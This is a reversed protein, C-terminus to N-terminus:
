GGASWSLQVSTEGSETPAAVVQVNAGTQGGAAGYARAEGQNMAMVSSLGEAEARAKHFAIVADPDADTTYTVLGGPGGTGSAVVAPGDIEGGPYIVAFGPAGEAAAVASPMAAAAPTPRIESGPGTTAESATDSLSDAPMAEAPAASSDNRGCGALVSFAGAMCAVAMIRKM